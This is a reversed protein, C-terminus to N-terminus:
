CRGPIQTLRLNQNLLEGATGSSRSQEQSIGLNQKDTIWLPAAPAFPGLVSLSVTLDSSVAEETPDSSRTM